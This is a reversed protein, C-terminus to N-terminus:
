TLAPSSRGRCYRVAIHLMANGDMCPTDLDALREVLVRIISMDRHEALSILVTKGERSADRSTSIIRFRHPDFGM